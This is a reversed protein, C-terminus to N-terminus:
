GARRRSWLVVASLLFLGFFWGAPVPRSRPTPTGNRRLELPGARVLYRASGDLLEASQRSRWADATQVYFSPGSAGEVRHWGAERPWFRGRWRTPVLPDRALFVSDHAGAPGVLIAVPHDGPGDVSLAVPRNVLWPGPSAIEWDEAPGRDDLATLLRSWYAAFAEPEGMRVWRASEWVVSIGVRGAGRPAVQAVIGGTGDEILPEIGFREALTYPAAPLPTTTSRRAGAGPWVPRVSREDVGRVPVFGFGLFFDRDSFRISPDLAVTDPEILVGLGAETVARRLESREVAALGALTRGDILVVDFQSLLRPTLADLGVRSRNVFETRFRDRSIASRIAVAGHHRALWDRLARTEFRPSAELILLRPVPPAVVSIGITEQVVARDHISVRLMGHMPGLARPHATLQFTGAHDLAASDVSGGPDSLTIVAGDPVLRVTGEVIVDDGLSVKAPWSIRSIGPAAASPHFSVPISDLERWTEPDLGWGVVHVRRLSALGHVARAEDLVPVGGLSDALRRVSAADAGPTALVAETATAATRWRPRVGIALLALLAVILAARHLLRM